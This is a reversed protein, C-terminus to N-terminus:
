SFWAENTIIKSLRPLDETIFKQWQTRIEVKLREDTADVYLAPSLFSRDFIENWKMSPSKVFTKFLPKEKQATRFIAERLEKPGPGIQLKLRLAGEYNQFEFLLLRNSKTWGQGSQLKPVDWAKVGFRIYAKSSDDLALEPDSNILEELFDRIPTRKDPRHEIILDIAKKHKQYIQACLKAIDSQSVIHRRLMQKYQDISMRVEPPISPAWREAVEELASSLLGYDTALFFDGSPQERDPTLYIGITKWTAFHADLTEKYRRLQDSHETSDIKNEIAVAFQHAYDLLLIDISEWERRVEMQGLDWSDLDIVSVPVSADPKSSIARQLFKKVFKDELRHNQRPDLLCALFDSHRLEQRVAGIAEFINFEDLLSELRELDPNDLVFSELSKLVSEEM